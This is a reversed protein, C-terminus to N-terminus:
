PGRRHSSATRRPTESNGGPAPLARGELYRQAQVVYHVGRLIQKAIVARAQADRISIKGERLLKLDGALGDILGQLDFREALTSTTDPAAPM